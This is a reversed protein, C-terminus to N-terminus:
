RAPITACIAAAMRHERQVMLERLQAILRAINLVAFEMAATMRAASIRACNKDPRAPTPIVMRGALGRITSNAPLMNEMAAKAWATILNPVLSWDRNVSANKLSIITM